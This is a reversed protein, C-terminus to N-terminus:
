RKVNCSLVCCVYVRGSSIVNYQFNLLRTSGQSSRYANIAAKDIPSTTRSIKSIKTRESAKEEALRVRVRYLAMACFTLGKSLPGNFSAPM